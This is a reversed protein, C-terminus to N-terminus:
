RPRVSRILRLLETPPEAHPAASFRRLAEEFSALAAARDGRAQQVIGRYYPADVSSPLAQEIAAAARDLREIDGLMRAARAEGILDAAPSPPSTVTVTNSEVPVGNDVYTAILSAGAAPMAAAPIEFRVELSRAPDLTVPPDPAARVILGDLRRRTSDSQVVEVSIRAAWEERPVAVVSAPPTPAPPTGAPPPVAASADRDLAAQRAVRDFMTAVLVGGQGNGAPQLHIRL